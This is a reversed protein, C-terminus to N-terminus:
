THIKKTKLVGSAVKERVLHADIKFHKSKEHFMSNATIQLAFSNDYYLVVHLLDKVGMDGLVNSLWVVKCTAYAMSKYEAEASSRSLTSQKKGKWTVLSDGLFVCYSSVSKRTALCRDCDSDTSARLKLNGNKNIQIGSKLSGKLYRLVRLADDLYSVLPAHMFQSLCCVVYSIDPRTNSLYILKGILRQYSGVNDLLHNDDSEIHNLTTNKPLSTDVHKAALLGYEYLLELFYKRQSLCIGDVKSEKNDFGPPLTLYVDESLDGYLFANNIDLQFLDWNNYVFVNLMCRMTSMKVIPNIKFLWKSGVHKRGEPLDSTTWTNSGNLAEIDHNIAEVWNPNKVPEYYTNPKFSKNLNTSLCYNSTNLNLYTVYKEPGYKRISGVVYDNFKALVKVFRSSRRIDHKEQSTNELLSRQTNLGFSSPVNGKSSSNDGISTAFDGESDHSSSTCPYVNGDDNPTKSGRGDDNLMKVDLRLVTNDQSNMAAGEAHKHDLIKIKSLLKNSTPELLIELTMTLIVFIDSQHEPM